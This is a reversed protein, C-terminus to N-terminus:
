YGSRSVRLRRAMKTVPYQGQYQHILLYAAVPFETGHFLIENTERLDAIEKRLRATEEDRANERGSFAKIHGTESRKM